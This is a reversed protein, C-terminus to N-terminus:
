EKNEALQPSIPKAHHTVESPPSRQAKRTSAPTTKESAANQRM